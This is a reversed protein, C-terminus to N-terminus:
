EVLVARAAVPRLQAALAMEWFFFPAEDRPAAAAWRRAVERASDAENLGVYTRLLVGRLAANRPSAAAARQAAPVLEALRNLGPLVRELGLLASLNTPDARLTAFYISAAQGLQGARELEFGQGIAQGRAIRGPAVALALGIALGAIGSNSHHMSGASTTWCWGVSKRPSGRCSTGRPTASGRARGRREPSSRPPSM